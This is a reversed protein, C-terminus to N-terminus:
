KSKLAVTIARTLRIVDMVKGKEVTIQERSIAHTFDGEGNCIRVIAENDGTLLIDPDDLKGDSITGSLDKIELYFPEENQLDFQFSMNWNEDKGAINTVFVQKAKEINNIEKIIKDMRDRAIGMRNGEKM